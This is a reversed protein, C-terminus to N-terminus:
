TKSILRSFHGYRHRELFGRSSSRLASTTLIYAITSSTTSGGSTTSRCRQYWYHWATTHDCHRVSWRPCQLGLRPLSPLLLGFNLTDTGDGDDYYFEVGSAKASTTMVGSFDISDNGAGGIISASSVQAGFTLTDSGGLGILATSTVAKTFDVSDNCGWYRPSCHHRFLAISNFSDNGAGSVITGAAVRGAVNIDNNGGGMDFRGATLMSVLGLTDNGAATDGASSGGYVTGSTMTIYLSDNGGDGYFKGTSTNLHLTDADAGGFVSSNTLAGGGTIFDTGAGGM